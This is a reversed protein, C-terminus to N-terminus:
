IIGISTLFGSDLYYIERGIYYESLHTFNNIADLVWSFFQNNWLVYAIKDPRFQYKPEIIFKLYYNKYIYFDPYYSIGCAQVSVGNYEVNDFINSYQSFTKM